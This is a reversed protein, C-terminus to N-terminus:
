TQNFGMILIQQSLKRLKQLMLILFMQINMPKKTIFNLILYYVVLEEVAIVDPFPTLCLQMEDSNLQTARYYASSTQHEFEIVNEMINQTHSKTFRSAHNPVYNSVVLYSGLFDSEIGIIEFRSGHLVSEEFVLFDGIEFKSVECYVKSSNFTDIFGGVDEVVNLDFYTPLTFELTLKNESANLVSFEADIIGNKKSKQIIVVDGIKYGHPFETEVELIGNNQMYSRVIKSEIFDYRIRTVDYIPVETNYGITINRNGLFDSFENPIAIYSPSTGEGSGHSIIRNIYFRFKNDGISEYPCNENTITYNLMTKAGDGEILLIELLTSLDPVPETYSPIIREVKSKKELECCESKNVFSDLINLEIKSINDDDFQLFDKIIYCHSDSDNGIRLTKNILENKIEIQAPLTQNFVKKLFKEDVDYYGHTGVVPSTSCEDFARLIVKNQIEPLNASDYYMKTKILYNESADSPEIKKFIVDRTCQLMAFINRLVCERKQGKTRLSFLRVSLNNFSEKFTDDLIIESPIQLSEIDYYNFRKIGVLIDDALFDLLNNLQDYQTTSSNKSVYEFLLSFIVMRIYSGCDLKGLIYSELPDHILLNFKDSLGFFFKLLQNSKMHDVLDM